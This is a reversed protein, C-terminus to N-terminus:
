KNHSEAIRDIKLEMRELQSRLLNMMDTNTKDQRDDREHQMLTMSSQQQEVLSLRNEIKNVYFLIGFVVSLTTFVHGIQIEKKFTWHQTSQKELM